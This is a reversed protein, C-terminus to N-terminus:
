VLGFCLLGVWSGSIDFIGCLWLLGFFLIM